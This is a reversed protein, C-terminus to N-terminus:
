SQRGAPAFPEGILTLPNGDFDSLFPNRGMPVGPFIV